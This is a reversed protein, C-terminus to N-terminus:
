WLESRTPLTEICGVVLGDLQVVHENPCDPDDCVPTGPRPRGSPVTADVQDLEWHAEALLSSPFRSPPPPPAAPLPAGHLVDDRYSTFMIVLTVLGAVLTAVVLGLMM